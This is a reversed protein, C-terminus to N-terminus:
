FREAGTAHLRSRLDKLLAESAPYGVEWLQIWTDEFRNQLMPHLDDFHLGNLPHNESLTLPYANHHFGALAAVRHRGDIVKCVGDLQLALYVAPLPIRALVSEVLRSNAEPTWAQDQETELNLQIRGLGVRKCLELIGRSESRIGVKIYQDMMTGSQNETHHETNTDTAM